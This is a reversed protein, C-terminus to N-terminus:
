ATLEAAFDRAFTEVSRPARGIVREFDDTVFDGWGSAYATYYDHISEIMWSSAGWNALAAETQELSIAEYRVPRGLGASMQEAVAAMDLSEPGTITYTRGEHGGTMLVKAAFLGIDRTDILGMRGDGLAMPLVGQAVSRAQRLLNQMFFHPKVIAYPIGSVALEHDSLAHSRSNITPANHAAGVASLRLVFSVNARRAARIASSNQDPAQPGPRTLLWVADAGEFAPPLTRPRDFDGVFVEFGRAELAAGKAPDHVLARVTHNSGELAELVSTSVRGTAGTVLITKSM